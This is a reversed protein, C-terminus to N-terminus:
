KRGFKSLLDGVSFNPDPQMSKQPRNQPPPASSAFPAPKGQPGRDNGRETGSNYPRDNPRDSPRGNQNPPGSVRSNQNAGSPGSKSNGSSSHGSTPQSSNSQSSNPQGAPARPQSRASLSIRKRAKDVELVRVTLVDGVSVVSGPDTVFQDSLESVHILGDQHVGIDVFAGFSIVNTVTGQLTMGPNLDSIESVDDSYTLRIGEERPDRGPKILEQSIDRLTPLGVSETVYKEWPVANVLTGKGVLEAVSTGQDKAVQEIISYREPHVASNDLPNKSEPVRLFGAAQEFAKPGFGPVKLLEARTGFKGNKDRHTVISKALSGGIGSVYGLLKYSATNLNVGVKNVCSEVVDELSGKLKTVNVDHQYQGVGISRPDIKVLEALPDQLRRAISIASRITADLDPFEERAIEDASYVSAGSENVILRKVETFNQEKIVERIIRDIERSGTGNGISIYAVKQTRIVNALIEKTQRTKPTDVTGEAKFDPYVTTHFLVAGTENIVALKSGTRIGPDVGLVVKQPIPPLLLLNELNKTFVKISDIEGRSKLELRLETEISPALLRRYADDSTQALWARVESTTADLGIVAKQVDNNIREIDVDIGVRLVKEAEGRRIAMIRHSPISKISERFDFYNEYKHAEGKKGKGALKSDVKQADAEEASKPLNDAAENKKSWLVGTDTSITRVMARWEATESIREALIDSAGALALEASAVKLAPDLNSSEPTVFTKALDIINKLTSRGALIAELLPELGKEKAIQAKTRRKPKFPLYLDELEQKTKCATFKRKLEPFKGHWAPNKQCFEDVVKLYKEKSGELEVLYNYRDRLDRIQVEDMAGTIEKRYRAVFPITCEEDVLLKITNTVQHAQLKLETALQKLIEIM